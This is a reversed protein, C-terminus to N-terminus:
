VEFGEVFAAILQGAAEIDELCATEVATHMYRLPISVLATKVGGKVTSISDANTGGTDRNMIELQYKIDWEDATRKLGEFMERCLSPAYGIMPGGGLKGCKYETKPDSCHPSLGYSVDVAIAYNPELNYTTVSAGRCGLEEQVSFSVAINFGCKSNKLLGLAILVACVGARDDLAAGSVNNNLLPVLEGSVTVVDGLSVLESVQSHTLGTDIRISDAKIVEDSKKV